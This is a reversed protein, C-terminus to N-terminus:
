EEELTVLLTFEWLPYDHRLTVYKSLHRKCYDFFFLPDGYYLDPRQKEPDSYNSLMNFAFGKSSMRSFAQITDLIYQRWSENSNDLKVNFIGSSLTFDAKKLSHRDSTFRCNPQSSHLAQAKAIMPKAIDYGVYSFNPYRGTLYDFLAGYGCGYDNFAASILDNTIKLLHHFRLKQSDQSNWDVGRPTPGYAELRGSYYQDIDSLNVRSTKPATM